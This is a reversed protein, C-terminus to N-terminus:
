QLLIMTIAQRLKQASAERAKGSSVVWRCSWFATRLIGNFIILAQATYRALQGERKEIFYFFSSLGQKHMEIPNQSTSMGGYHIIKADNCYWVELGAKAMRWCWDMEEGYMFYAEDLGGIEDIVKRPVLMYCGAVVDVKRSDTYDWWNMRERSFFKSNSFLRHLSSTTIALNLLSAYQFCNKQLQGDAHINRIGVAGARPHQEAFAITKQIARDLIVTDPNLLLVFRGKAIEIGQNNAAAFGRNQSNCILIAQPFEQRVMEPSGDTSANDVLILELEIDNSERYLSELCQRLIDKTNWSVVIVSVETM